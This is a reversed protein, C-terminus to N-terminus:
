LSVFEEPRSSATELRGTPNVIYMAIVTRGYRRNRIGIMAGGDDRGVVHPLIGLEVPYEVMVITDEAVIPSNAVGELLDAYVVEEYPPCMTILQFSSGIPIGAKYPERLVSLADNQLVTAKGDFQCWQVNREIAACCDTALDVFTCHTAGRSLSELGVSGSGAFIDLHRCAHGQEYLGFSTFTSYVAERVKGMMPRLYVDPSDLRRGKATGASIQLMSPNNLGAERAKGQPRLRPNQSGGKRQRFQQPVIHGREPRQAKIKRRLNAPMPQVFPRSSRLKNNEENITTGGDSAAAAAAPSSSAEDDTQRIATSWLGIPRSLIFGSIGENSILLVLIIRNIIMTNNRCFLRLLKTQKHHQHTSRVTAEKAEAHFKEKTAANVLEMPSFVSRGTNM